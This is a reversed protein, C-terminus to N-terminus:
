VNKASLIVSSCKDSQACIIPLDWALASFDEVSEDPVRTLLTELLTKGSSEVVKDLLTAAKDTAELFLAELRVDEKDFSDQFVLKRQIPLTAVTHVGRGLILDMRKESRRVLAMFKAQRERERKAEQKTPKVGLRVQLLSGSWWEYDFGPPKKWPKGVESHGRRNYKRNLKEMARALAQKGVLGEKIAEKICARLEARSPNRPLPYKVM